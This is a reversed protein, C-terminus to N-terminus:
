LVMLVVISLIIGISGFFISFPGEIIDPMAHRHAAAAVIGIKFLQAFISIARFALDLVAIVILSVAPGTVRQM